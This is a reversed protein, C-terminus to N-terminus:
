IIVRMLALLEPVVFGACDAVTLECVVVALPIAVGPVAPAAGPVPFAM